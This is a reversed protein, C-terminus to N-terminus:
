FNIKYFELATSDSKHLTLQRLNNVPYTILDTEHVFVENTVDYDVIRNGKNYMELQKESIVVKRVGKGTPVRFEIKKPNVAPFLLAKYRYVDVDLETQSAKIEDKDIMLPRGNTRADIAHAEVTLGSINGLTLEIKQDKNLPLVGNLSFPMYFEEVVNTTTDVNSIFNRTVISQFLNKLEKVTMQPVLNLDPRNTSRLDIKITSTLKMGTLLVGQMAKDIELIHTAKGTITELM